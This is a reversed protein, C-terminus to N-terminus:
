SIYIKKRRFKYIFAATNALLHRTASLYICFRIRLNCLFYEFVSVLRNGHSAIGMSSCINFNYRKGLRPVSTLMTRGDQGNTRAAVRLTNKADVECAYLQLIRPNEANVNVKKAANHMICVYLIDADFISCECRIRVIIKVVTSDSWWM